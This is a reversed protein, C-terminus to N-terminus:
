TEAIQFIIHQDNLKIEKIIHADDPIEEDTGVILSHPGAETISQYNSIEEFHYRDYDRVTSFGYQDRPTLISETQFKDPSYQSYFLFLIYPQDYRDTIYITNYNQKISEIYPVLESFGYQSSYPYTPVVLLYYMHLYRAFDWIFLTSVVFYFTSLLFNSIQINFTSILKIFWKLAIVVGIATIITLPIVISFSRLAHPSQFTLAASIPAILLWSMLLKTIPLQYNTILFFIGLIVFPISVIYLQGFGPVKNRQIEDGDIFLFNGSFHRLYNDFFRTAYAIPRNYLLKIPLTNFQNHLGRAENTRNIPGPDAFISVGSARSLGSPSLLSVLLPITLFIGIVFSAYLYKSTRQTHNFINIKNIFSDKESRPLIIKIFHERFIIILSLTLLPAIIRMSHYTYVSLIFCITFVLYWQPKKLAKLFGYVGLLLFATSTQTEWAGRSFHIHWPSIALLLATITPLQYNTILLKDNKDNGRFRSDM